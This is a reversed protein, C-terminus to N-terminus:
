DVSNMDVNTMHSYNVNGSCENSENVTHENDKHSNKKCVPELGCTMIQPLFEVEGYTLHILKQMEATQDAVSVFNMRSPDEQFYLTAM